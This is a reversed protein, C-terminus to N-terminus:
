KVPWVHPTWCGIANDATLAEMGRKFAVRVADKTSDAYRRGFYDRWQDQTVCKVGSPIHNSAPPITGLDALAEHLAALAIKAAKTMRAMTKAPKAADDLGPVLSFEGKHEEIEFEDLTFGWQGRSDHEKHREVKLISTRNEKDGESQLRTDFSGWLHSHGRM